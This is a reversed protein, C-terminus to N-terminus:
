LKKLNKWWEWSEMANMEEWLLQAARTQLHKKSNQIWVAMKTYGKELYEKATFAQELYDADKAIVGPISSREETQKWLSFIAEGMEELPRCQDKVAGQEDAQIYRNAVKHIDGIRCEGIDHFVAMTVVEYPNEYGEAKALFYAIQATRLNHDAVSIVDGVGALRYGEHKIRRLQGLEFIFQTIQKNM